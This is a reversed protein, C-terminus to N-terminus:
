GTSGVSNRRESHVAEPDEDKVLEQNDLTWDYFQDFFLKSVELALHTWYYSDDENDDNQPGGTVLGAILLPEVGFRDLTKPCVKIRSAM